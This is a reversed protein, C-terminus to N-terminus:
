LIPPLALFSSWSIDSYSCCRSSCMLRLLSYKSLRPSPESNSPGVVFALVADDALPAAAVNGPAGGAFRARTLRSFVLGLKGDLRDLRSFPAAGCYVPSTISRKKSPSGVRLATRTLASGTRLLFADECDKSCRAVVNSKDRCHSAALRRAKSCSPPPRLRSPLLFTVFVSAAVRQRLSATRRHPSATGFTSMSQSVYTADRRDV